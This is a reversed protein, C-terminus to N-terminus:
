KGQQPMSMFMSMNDGLMYQPYKGDWNNARIYDNLTPSISRALKRNAAAQATAKVDIEYAEADALTKRANATAVAADEDAEAKRVREEAELTVIELQQTQQNVKETREKTKVIQNKVVNPLDIDLIRVDVIDMGLPGLYEKLETIMYNKMQTQVQESFFDESKQVTKGTERAKEEVKKFLQKRLFNKESGHNAYVTPAAGNQFRYVISIDIDSKLKDNAPILLNEITYENQRITYDYYSAWPKVIHFGKGIAQDSVKGFTVEAYETGEDVVLTSTLGFIVLFIGFLIGITGKPSLGIEREILKLM